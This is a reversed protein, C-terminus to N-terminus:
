WYLLIITDHLQLPFLISLSIKHVMKAHKNEDNWQMKSELDQM